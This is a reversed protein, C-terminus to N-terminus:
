TTSLMQMNRKGELAKLIQYVITQPRVQPQLSPDAGADFPEPVLTEPEQEQDPM